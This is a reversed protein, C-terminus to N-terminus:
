TNDVLNGILHLDGSIQTRTLEGQIESIRDALFQCSDRLPAPFDARQQLQSTLPFAISVDLSIHKEDRNCFMATISPGNCRTGSFDPSAYGGHTWGDPLTMESLIETMATILKTNIERPKIERDKVYVTIGKGSAVQQIKTDTETVVYLCDMENLRGTKSGDYFSGIQSLSGVWELRQLLGSQLGSRIAHLAQAVDSSHTFDAMHQDIDRLDMDSHVFDQFGKKDYSYSDRLGSVSHKAPLKAEEITECYDNYDEM